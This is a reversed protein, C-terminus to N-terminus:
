IIHYKCFREGEGFYALTQIADERLEGRETRVISAIEARSEVIGFRRVLHIGLLKLNYNDSTLLPTYPIPCYGRSIVTLIEAIDRRSLHQEFESLCAIARYPAISFICMLAYFRVQESTDTLFREVRVETAISIPLRALLALAYARQASDRSKAARDLLYRELHYYKVIIRLPDHAQEDVRDAVFVVCQVFNHRAIGRGLSVVDGTGCTVFASIREITLSETAASRASLRTILILVITGLLLYTITAIIM